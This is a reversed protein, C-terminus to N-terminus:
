AYLSQNREECIRYLNRVLNEALSLSFDGPINAVGTGYGSVHSAGFIKATEVQTSALKKM